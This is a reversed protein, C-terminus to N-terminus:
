AHFEHRCEQPMAGIQVIRQGVILLQGLLQVRERREAAELQLLHAGPWDRAALSPPPGSRRLMSNTVTAAMPRAVRSPRTHTHAQDCM